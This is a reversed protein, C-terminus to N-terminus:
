TKFPGVYRAVFSINFSTEFPDVYSGDKKEGLVIGLLHSTLRLRLISSM